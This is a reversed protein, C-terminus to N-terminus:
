SGAPPRVHDAPAPRKRAARALRQECHDLWRLEAELQFIVGDVVLLWPLDEGGAEVKLRTHDQLSRMSDARQVQLVAQLDVGPSGSALALKISLEDRPREERRVPTTFWSQVEARGQATIEYYHHGSESAAQATVCGDRELRSLTTYVQGVNLPWTAGTRAEFEGRLEYGYRPREALLVLLGHRVSM